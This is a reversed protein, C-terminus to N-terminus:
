GLAEKSKNGGQVENIIQVVTEMTISGYNDEDYMRFVLNELSRRDLSCYTWLTFVFEKFEVKDTFYMTIHSNIVLPSLYPLIEGSPAYLCFLKELFPSPQLGLDEAFSVVKIFDHGDSVADFSRRLSAVDDDTLFLAGFLQRDEESCACPAHHAPVM